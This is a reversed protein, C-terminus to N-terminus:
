IPRTSQLKGVSELYARAANQEAQKRSRGSGEACKEGNIYLAVTFEKEHDPGVAAIIQYEPRVQSRRALYEQLASKYDRGEEIKEPHDLIEQFHRLVFERATDFGAALFIAGIVAELADALNSPRSLGGTALEGKGMRLLEALHLKEAVHCLSAECVAISKLRTLGGEDTKRRTLYLQHAIILGLASDGLFELRQNHRDSGTPLESRYENSYSKHTLAIDLLPLVTEPLNEQALFQRLKQERVKDM